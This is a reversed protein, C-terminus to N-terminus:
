QEKMELVLKGNNQSIEIETGKEWGIEEVIKTPITICYRYYKKTKTEKNLQRQLRM